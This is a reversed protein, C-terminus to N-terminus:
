WTSEWIFFIEPIIELDVSKIELEAMRCILKALQLYDPLSELDSTPEPDEVPTTKKLSSAAM